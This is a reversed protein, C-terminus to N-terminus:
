NELADIDEHTKAAAIADMRSEFVVRAADVSLLTM